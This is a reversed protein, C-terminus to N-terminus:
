STNALRWFFLKRPESHVWQGSSLNICHRKPQSYPLEQYTSLRRWCLMSCFDFKTSRSSILDFKQVLFILIFVFHFLDSFIYVCMFVKAANSFVTFIAFADSNWLLICNKLVVIWVQLNVNNWSSRIILIHEEKSKM